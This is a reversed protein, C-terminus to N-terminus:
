LSEPVLDFPQNQATRFVSFDRRDLTFVSRIGERESLYCLSADAIQVGLDRYKEMFSRMWPVAASDLDLPKVLGYEIQELLKSVGDPTARLLWAAETLVLWSTFFPYKLVQSQVICVKHQSDEPRLLAVLPGADVLIRDPTVSASGM